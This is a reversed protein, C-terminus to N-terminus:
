NYNFSKALQLAVGFITHLSRCLSFSNHLCAHAQKYLKILTKSLYKVRHWIPVALDDVAGGASYVM